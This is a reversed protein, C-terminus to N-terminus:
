NDINSVHGGVIKWNENLKAWVRTYSYTGNMSNKNFTGELNCKVAVIAFQDYCRIEQDFNEIKSIKIGGSKHAELDMEKTVRDGTPLTFILRDGILNNLAFIDSGLLALRIKEEMEAITKSQM